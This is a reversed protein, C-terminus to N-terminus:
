VELPQDDPEEYHPIYPRIDEVTQRRMLYRATTTVHAHGLASAVVRIDAGQDLMRGAYSHRAAHGSRGDRPRKKIGADAMIRSVMIGITDPHLAQGTSYSRVLPGFAAPHAALYADIAAATPESLPLARVHGGKGTVEIMRAHTDIAGITLSQVEGRRLGEHLMLSVIVHARQDPCADLLRSPEDGVLERPIARPRRPTRVSASPNARIMNENVCWSFFGRIIGLRVAATSPAVPRSALWGQIHSPRVAKLAIDSGTHDAFGELTYGHSRRTRIALDARRANRYLTVARGLRM